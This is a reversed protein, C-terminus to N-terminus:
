KFLFYKTIFNQPILSNQYRCYIELHWKISLSVWLVAEEWALGLTFHSCIGVKFCWIVGVNNGKLRFGKSQIRSAAQTRPWQVPNGLTWWLPKSITMNMSPFTSRKTRVIFELPRELYTETQKWNDRNSHCMAFRHPQPEKWSFLSYQFCLTPSINMNINSLYLFHFM